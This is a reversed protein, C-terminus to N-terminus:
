RSLGKSTRPYFTAPPRRVGLCLAEWRHVEARFAAPNGDHFEATKEAGSAGARITVRRAGQGAVLDTYSQRLRAATGCPDSPDLIVDTM